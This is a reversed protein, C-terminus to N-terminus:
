PELAGTAGTKAPAAPGRPGGQAPAPRGSGAPKRRESRPRADSWHPYDRRLKKVGFHAEIWEIVEPTLSLDRSQDPASLDATWEAGDPATLKLQRPLNVVFLDIADGDYHDSSRAGRKTAYVVGYTDALQRAADVTATWGDPHRWRIPVNLGWARNYRKLRKIHRRLQGRSQARSLLFSGYLLYGRERKRVTSEVVLMAGQAKLQEILLRMRAAFVPNAAALTELRGEETEPQQYRAAWDPGVVAGDPPPTLDDQPEPEELPVKDIAGYLRPRDTRFIDDPHLLVGIARARGAPLHAPTAELDSGSRLLDDVFLLFDEVDVPRELAERIGRTLPEQEDINSWATLTSGDVWQGALSIRGKGLKAGAERLKSRISAKPTLVEWDRNADLPSSGLLM